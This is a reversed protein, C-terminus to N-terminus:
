IEVPNIVVGISDLYKKLDDLSITVMKYNVNPHFNLLEGTMVNKDLFFTVEKENDNILSFPNVSGPVLGLVKMLREPSAFSLRSSGIKDKILKLDVEADDKTTILYYKDGKANRLFLNKCHLGETKDKIQNLQEATYLPEHELVSYEIGLEDLKDYVKKENELIEM